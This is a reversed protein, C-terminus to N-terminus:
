KNVCYAFKRKNTQKSKIENLKVHDLLYGCQVMALWVEIIGFDLVIRRAVGGDSPSARQEVAALNRRQALSDRRDGLCHSPHPPPNISQDASQSIYIISQNTSLDSRNMKSYISQNNLSRDISRDIAQDPSYNISKNM